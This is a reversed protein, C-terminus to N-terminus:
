NQNLIYNDLYMKPNVNKVIAKFASDEIKIKIDAKNITKKITDFANKLQMFSHKQTIAEIFLRMTADILEIAKEEGHEKRTEIILEAVKLPQFPLSKHKNIRKIKGM